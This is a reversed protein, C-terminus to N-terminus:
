VEAGVIYIDEQKPWTFCLLGSCFIFLLFLCRHSGFCWIGKLGQM